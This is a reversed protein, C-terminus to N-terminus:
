PHALDSFLPPHGLADLPSPLIPLSYTSRLLHRDLDCGPVPFQIVTDAFTLMLYGYPRGGAGQPRGGAGEWSSPSTQRTCKSATPDEASASSEMSLRPCKSATPDEASASPEMCLFQLTLTPLADPYRRINLPFLPFRGGGPGRGRPPPTAAAGGNLWAITARYRPLLSPPMVLLALVSLSRLVAEGRGGGVLLPLASARPNSETLPLLFDHLSATLPSLRRLCDDCLLDTTLGRIGMFSPFLHAPAGFTVDPRTHGCLRCRGADPATIVAPTHPSLTLM